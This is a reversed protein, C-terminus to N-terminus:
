DVSDESVAYITDLSICTLVQFQQEFPEENTIYGEFSVVQNETLTFYSPFECPCHGFTTNFSGMAVIIYRDFQESFRIIGERAVYNDQEETVLCDSCFEIDEKTCSGIFIICLLILELIPKM